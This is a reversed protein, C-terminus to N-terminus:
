FVKQWRMSVLYLSGRESYLFCTGVRGSSGLDGDSVEADIKFRKTLRYSGGAGVRGNDERSDDASVTDQVFGYARWRAGPDFTAQVVADTREGQQQTLPVVPSNDERLDNRVGTSVTWEDTLRYGLNLEVARTELGQEETRQDGKAALSLRGTVPM